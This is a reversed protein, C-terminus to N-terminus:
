KQVLSFDKARLVRLLDDNTCIESETLIGGRAADETQHYDSGSIGRLGHLKAWKEAIGNRSNHRICANYVEIGDLYEPNVITMGSRFPHAQFILLGNKHALKSFVPLRMQLLDGNKRLFEETIGYVLYDNINGKRDFRLEMGLLINLDTGAACKAARYGRLFIDIKEDWSLSKSAYAEFTSPSLHDTIVVTRCGAKKYNEVLTEATDKACRSTEATHAHLETFFKEM